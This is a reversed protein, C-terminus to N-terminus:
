RALDNIHELADRLREIERAQADRETAFQVALAHEKEGMDKWREIERAQDTLAATIREELMCILCGPSHGCTHASLFSTIAKALAEPTPTM